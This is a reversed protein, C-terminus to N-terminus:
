RPRPTTASAWRPRGHRVGARDREQGRRGARLRDRRRQHVPPLLPTTIADQVLEARDIDTCPSSPRPRSSPPSRRRGPQARHGGGGPGAAVGAAEVIVESMRKTTGLEIGKMLRSWRPTPSSARRGLRRPQRAADAVARRARGARRRRDGRAADATATVRTRCGCRRAPLRPQAAPGPDGDAVAARRAWITVDRGADALVKAFATGWSGAGLVAVHRDDSSRRQPEDAVRSAARRAAPSWLPPPTGGRIEALMDRLRLMIADTIEDLTARPRRPARGGAVPRDAPRRRRDGPHAPAPQAQQTRPDFIQQPGWM